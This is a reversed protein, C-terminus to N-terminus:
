AVQKMTDTLFQPTEDQLWKCVRRATALFTPMGANGHAIARHLREQASRAFSEKEEKLLGLLAGQMEIAPMDGAGGQTADLGDLLNDLRVCDYWSTNATTYKMASLARRESDLLTGPAAKELEGLSALTMAPCQCVPLFRLYLSVWGRRAPRTMRPACGTLRTATPAKGRGRIIAHFTADDPPPFPPANSFLGRTPPKLRQTAMSANRDDRLGQKSGEQYYSNWKKVYFQRHPAEDAAVDEFSPPQGKNCRGPIYHPTSSITCTM